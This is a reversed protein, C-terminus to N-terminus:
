GKAKVLVVPKGEADRVHDLVVGPSGTERRPMLFRPEWTFWSGDLTWPRKPDPPTVKEIIASLREALQRYCSFCTRQELYTWAM